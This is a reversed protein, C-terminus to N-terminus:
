QIDRPSIKIMRKLARKVQASSSFNVNFFYTTFIIIKQKQYTPFQFNKTILIEIRYELNETEFFNEDPTEEETNLNIQM